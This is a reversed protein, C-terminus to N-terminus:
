YRYIIPSGNTNERINRKSTRHHHTSLPTEPKVKLLRVIRYHAGLLYRVCGAHIHLFSKPPYKSNSNESALCRSM